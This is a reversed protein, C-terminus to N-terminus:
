LSFTTQIFGYDTERGAPYISGAVSGGFIHGYYLQLAFHSNMKWTAQCDALSGLYGFGNSPRGAYGFIRNDFAGGGSYWRDKKADLWLGHLSSQIELNALPHLLLQAMADNINMMNYFPTMAYLRPTPLIQFFTSHTSDKKDDDGSGITYGFRLWPKWPAHALRYGAEAVVAYARQSQAGWSGFQGASWLLLDAAGSGMAITRAYDGGVTDISVPGTDATKGSLGRNDVLALGRTDNYYIYFLRGISNGWLESRLAGPGANLSAYVLDTNRIEEMANLDFVGKTPVGYMVTAQWDENGYSGVVGDFSRTVDSFGFNGILRQAIRNTAIWKLQPDLEAPLYELGDFFEFRGGKVDLGPVINRGFKLYAQKLFVSADHPNQHPQYYNAGLGLLGQPGPKGPPPPVIANDPLNIFFPSMLEAFAKVGDFQYGLGVRIWSGMFNYRNQYDPGKAPNTPAFWNWVEERSQETATLVIPQGGITFLDVAAHAESPAVLSTVFTATIMTFILSRWYHLRGGAHLDKSIILRSTSPPHANVFKM